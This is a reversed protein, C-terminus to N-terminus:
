AAQFALTYTIGREIWRNYGNNEGVLVFGCYSIHVWICTDHNPLSAVLFCSRAQFPMSILILNCYDHDVMSCKTITVANLKYPKSVSM